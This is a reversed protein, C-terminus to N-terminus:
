PTASPAPIDAKYLERPCPLFDAHHQNRAVGGQSHVRSQGRKCFNRSTQVSSLDGRCFSARNCDRPLQSLNTPPSHCQDPICRTSHIRNGAFSQAQRKLLSPKQRLADFSSVKIGILRRM